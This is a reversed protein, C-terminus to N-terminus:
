FTDSLIWPNLYFQHKELDLKKKWVRSRVYNLAKLNSKRVRSSVGPPSHTYIIECLLVVWESTAPSRHCIRIQHLLPFTSSVRWRNKLGREDPYVTDFFFLLCDTTLRAKILKSGCRLTCYKSDLWLKM